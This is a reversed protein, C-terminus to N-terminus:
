PVMGGMSADAAQRFKASSLAKGGTSVTTTWAVSSRVAAKGLLFMGPNSGARAAYSSFTM